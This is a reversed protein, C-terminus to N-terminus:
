VLTRRWRACEGREGSGLYTIGVLTEGNYAPFLLPIAYGDGQRRMMLSSLSPPPLRVMDIEIVQGLGSKEREFLAMLIGLVAMM